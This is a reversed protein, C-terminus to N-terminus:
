KQGRGVLIPIEILYGLVATGNKEDANIYQFTDLDFLIWPFFMKHGSDSSNFVNLSDRAKLM